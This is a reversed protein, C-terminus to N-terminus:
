CSQSSIQILLGAGRFRTGDQPQHEWINARKYTCFSFSALNLLLMTKLPFNLHFRLGRVTVTVGEWPM